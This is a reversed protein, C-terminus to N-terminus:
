EPRSNRQIHVSHVQFTKTLHSSPIFSTAFTCYSCLYLCATWAKIIFFIQWDNRKDAPRQVPQVTM